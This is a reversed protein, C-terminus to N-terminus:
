KANPNTTKLTAKFNTFLHYSGGKKNNLVEKSKGMSVLVCIEFKNINCYATAHSAGMNGLREVLVRVPSSKNAM